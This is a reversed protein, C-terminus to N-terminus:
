GTSGLLKTLRELREAIMWRYVDMEEPSWASDYQYQPRVPVANWIGELLKRAEAAERKAEASPSQEAEAIAQELSYLYRMDDYGERFGEWLAVPIPTGDPESRVLFDSMRGDLCNFPDGSSHQYMWPILRVFGSRWFGFGYTMRAGAVPTHDNEGSIDNPYCWYEVGRAKMDAVAADHEPLFTQTCWVDVYPKLPQYGPREPSATTYTRVGAAKVAQMLRVMFAIVAPDSSPEDFPQYVFEPWHRRQREAEIERVLATVEPFFADPPMEVGRLHSEIGKKMYKQYIEETSISMVYPPQFGFRAAMRLEGDLREFSEELYRFKGQEDAAEAWCDLTVNRTGHAAMDAHELASKRTWYERSTADPASSVRSLPDDYYIGYTHGPDEELRVGVVRLLVPIAASKGDASFVIRGRYLGPKAEEPVHVTLWFTANEDAALPGGAWRDLIDPVIRYRGSISYNPRVQLFRVKRVEVAEAPAPGIGEVRVEARALERLPRVTFTLPEYEGPAAFARLTPNMEEKTPNTWPYIPTAWHRHWLYFGRERDEAAMVPEAGAPPRPDERWKALEESPAWQEIGAIIERAAAEDGLQWAVMGAICWKSRPNVRVEIEGQSEVAFVHGQRVYPGGWGPAAFQYRWRETGVSVVFDWYQATGSEWRAGIDSVLYVSWRGAPAEFRYSAPKSGMLSDQTLPNTWIPDGTGPADHATPTETTAWGPDSPTVRQAGPWLASTEGGMDFVLVEAAAGVPLSALAMMLAASLAARM